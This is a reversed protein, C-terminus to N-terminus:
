ALLEANSRGCSFDQFSVVCQLPDATWNLSLISYDLPGNDKGFALPTWPFTSYNSVNLTWIM